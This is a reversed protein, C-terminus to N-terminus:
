LYLFGTERQLTKRSRPRARCFKVLENFHTHKRKYLNEYLKELNQFIQFFFIFHLIIKANNKQNYKQRNSINKKRGIRPTSNQFISKINQTSWHAHRILVSLPRFWGILPACKIFFFIFCFFHKM